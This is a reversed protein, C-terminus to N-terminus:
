RTKILVHRLAQSRCACKSTEYYTSTWWSGYAQLAHELGWGQPPANEGDKVELADCFEFFANDSLESSPQLDQWSYLPDAVASERMLVAATHIANYLVGVHM